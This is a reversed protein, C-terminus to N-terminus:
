GFHRLFEIVCKQNQFPLLENNKWLSTLMTPEGTSVSTLEVNQMQDFVQFNTDTRVSLSAKPDQVVGGGLIGFGNTTFPLTSVFVLILAHRIPM